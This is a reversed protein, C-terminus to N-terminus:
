LQQVMKYEWLCHMLEFKEVSEGVSTTKGIKAMSTPIFYYRITTKYKEKYIDKQLCTYVARNFIIHLKEIFLLFSPCKSQEM